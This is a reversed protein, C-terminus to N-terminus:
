AGSKRRPAARRDTDKLGHRIDSAAQRIIGRPDRTAAWGAMSKGTTRKRTVSKRAVRTM